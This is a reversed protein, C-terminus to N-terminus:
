GERTKPGVETEEADKQSAPSRIGRARVSSTYRAMADDASGPYHMSALRNPYGTPPM